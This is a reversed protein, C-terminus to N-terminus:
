IAILSVDDLHVYREPFEHTSIEFHIRAFRADPPSAVHTANIFSTFVENSLSNEPILIELAPCDLPNKNHDLFEMDVQVCPNGYKSAASMFFNLQYFSDPCIGPVEQYLHAYPEPSGLIAANLGQHAIDERSLDIEKVGANIVWGSFPDPIDEFGGNIILEGRRPIGRHYNDPNNRGTEPTTKKAFGYRDYNDKNDYSEHSGHNKHKKHIKHDEYNEYNEHNEHNEHDVYDEHGVQDVYNAGHKHGEYKKHRKHRKQSRCNEQIEQNEQNEQNEQIDYDEYNDHNNHSCNDTYKPDGHTKIDRDTIANSNFSNMIITFRSSPIMNGNFTYKHKNRCSSDLYKGM